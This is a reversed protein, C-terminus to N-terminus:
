ESIFIDRLDVRVTLFESTVRTTGLRLAKAGEAVGSIMRLTAERFELIGLGLCTGNGDEMGVLLGDLISLDLDPPIQPILVSPKVKWRHVPPEFIAKLRDQRAAIREDFSRPRVGEPVPLSEVAVPLSRRVAGLIPELEGGRQFGVVIDPRLMELKHLKLMQGVTGGIFGTTDVLVLDVGSARAQDALKTAGVVIPLLHGQPSTDGVFYMADARALVDPELDGESKLYRLGVTTPPGVTTQGVDTDLYAVTKGFRLAVTACMRIFTSKGSDMGGLAVAMGGQRVIKAIVSEFADM